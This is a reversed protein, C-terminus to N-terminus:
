KGEFRPPRKEAFADLGEKADQTFASLGGALAETLPGGAEGNLIQKAMQVALPANTAIQASLEAARVSLEAEPLVENVLSWQAAKEASVREGSFIMQKARAVGILQPLRETGGWGPLTALGTEPMAFAADESALRLDAALVLELGGGFAYGQIVAIIPQPLAALRGFVEHGRRTWSRWMELPELSTWAHIDAGVCFARGEAKLLVVRVNQNGALALLHAELEGLMEVNLANLKDPRNLTLTAVRGFELRVLSM